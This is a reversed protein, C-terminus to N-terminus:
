GSIRFKILKQLLLEKCTRINGIERSFRFRLDYHFHCVKAPFIKGDKMVNFFLSKNEKYCMRKKYKNVLFYKKM